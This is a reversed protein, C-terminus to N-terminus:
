LFDALPDEEIEDTSLPMKNPKHVNKNHLREIDNLAIDLPSLFTMHNLREAEWDCDKYDAIKDKASNSIKRSVNLRLETIRRAVAEYPASSMDAIYYIIKEGSMDLDILKVWISKVLNEPLLLAAAFRDAAREIATKLIEKDTTNNSIIASLEEHVETLHFLEHALTFYQVRSSHYSNIFVFKDNSGNCPYDVKGGFLLKDNIYEYIIDSKTYSRVFQEIAAGIFTVSGFYNELIRRAENEAKQEGLENYISVKKNSIAM